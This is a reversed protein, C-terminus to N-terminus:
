WYSKLNRKSKLICFIKKIDQLRDKACVLIADKTNVVVMSNLGLTAVLGKESWVLTDQSGLDICNGKFINGNKNKKLLDEITAWSGLDLWGCNCPLVVGLNTKEMIGYDISVSPLRSWLKSIDQATRLKMVLRYISPAYKKIENLIVKASFIFIGSNWYYRPDRIFQKANEIGPKEIFRSIRYCRPQTLFMDSNAKIYGYGTEPKHPPIG